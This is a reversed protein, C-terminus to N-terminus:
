NNIFIESVFGRIHICSTTNTINIIAKNSNSMKIANITQCLNLSNTKTTLRVPIGFVGNAAIVVITTTSLGSIPAGAIPYLSLM